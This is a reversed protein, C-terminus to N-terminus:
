AAPGNPMVPPPAPAPAPAVYVPIPAPTATTKAANPVGYVGLVVGAGTLVGVWWNGTFPHPLSEQQVVFAIAYSILATLTKAYRAPILNM